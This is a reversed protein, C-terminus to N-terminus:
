LLRHALQSQTEGHHLKQLLMEVTRIWTAMVMNKSYHSLVHSYESVIM